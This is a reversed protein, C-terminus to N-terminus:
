RRKEKCIIGTLGVLVVLAFLVGKDLLEQIQDNLEKMEAPALRYLAKSIPVTGPMLEISFEVERDPPIDSVDEPFICHFDRVVEVDELKQSDPIPSSTVCALFTKCGRKMLKTACMCSIIHPMQKKRVAEFVFCKGSPPRSSVSRQWFDISAENLSLWDMDLIIDFEPMPLVILDTRVMDKQLHLELNKVISSTVMQDGSPISVKFGLGIDEPIINLRKVFTESIFSHTAGSDPLAYTAVGLIFIRGVVFVVNLRHMNFNLSNRDNNKGM